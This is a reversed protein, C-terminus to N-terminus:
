GRLAEKPIGLMASVDDFASEPLETPTDDIEGARGLESVPILGPALQALMQEAGEADAEFQKVWHAKRAPSIKGAKIAATILGDRHANVQQERATRGDEAGKQLNALVDTEIITLGEPLEPMTAQTTSAQPAPEAREELAEDLAALITAEDADEPLGLKTRLATYDADSFAVAPEKGKTTFGDASATPPKPTPQALAALRTPAPANPRGAYRYGFRALQSIVEDPDVEDDDEDDDADDAGATVTKGADPVVRTDDALGAAVAEAATYWTEAEMVAAWDELSGDGAAEAYLSAMSSQLSNLGGVVKQLDAAEGWAGASPNHIMLQAGPSMITEDCGVAIISAASAAIGDVVATVTAPHARLLNLIAIGDFASGGPCNIRVQIDTVAPDLGDLANAVDKASVNDNGWWSWSVLTGYIRITAKTGDVSVKPTAAAVVEGLVGRAQRPEPLEPLAIPSATSVRRTM